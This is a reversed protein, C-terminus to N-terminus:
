FALHISLRQATGDPQRLTVPVLEIQQTGGYLLATAVAGVTLGFAASGLGTSLDGDLGEVVTWYFYLGAGAGYGVAGGIAADILISKVSADLGLARGTWYTGAVVGLPAAPGLTVATAWGGGLAGVVLLVRQGSTPGRTEFVLASSDLVEQSQVTPAIALLVTLLVLQRSM